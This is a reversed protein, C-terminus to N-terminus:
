WPCRAPALQGWHGGHSSDARAVHFEVIEHGDNELQHYFQSSDQAECNESQRQICLNQLQQVALM